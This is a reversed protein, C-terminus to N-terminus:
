VANSSRPNKRQKRSRTCNRLKIFMWILAVVSIALIVVNVVMANTTDTKLAPQAVRYKQKHMLQKNEFTLRSVTDELAKIRDRSRMESGELKAVVRKRLKQNPDSQPDPSHDAARGRQALQQQLQRVTSRLNEIM